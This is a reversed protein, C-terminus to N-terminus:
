LVSVAVEASGFSENRILLKVLPSTHVHLRKYVGSIANLTKTYLECSGATGSEEDIM